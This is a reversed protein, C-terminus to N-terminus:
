TSPSGEDSAKSRHKAVAHLVAAGTVVGVATAPIIFILAYLWLNRPVWFLEACAAPVGWWLAQSRLRQSFTRNPVSIRIKGAMGSTTM